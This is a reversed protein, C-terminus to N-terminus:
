WAKMIWKIEDMTSQEQQVTAEMEREFRSELEEWDKSPLDEKPDASANQRDEQVILPNERPRKLGKDLHADKQMMTSERDPQAESPARPGPTSQPTESASGGFGSPGFTSLSSLAGAPSPNSSPIYTNSHATSRRAPSTHAAQSTLYSDVNPSKSTTPSSPPSYDEAASGASSPTTM